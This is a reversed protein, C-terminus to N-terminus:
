QTIEGKNDPKALSNNRPFFRKLKLFHKEFFNWSLWAAILIPIMAVIYFVLQAPLYSGAIDPFIIYPSRDPPGYVLDRVFARIPLHILYIAYSYKGLFRLWRTSFVKSVAGKEQNLAIEAVVWGFALALFTYGVMQMGLGNTAYMLSEDLYQDMTAADIAVVAGLGLLSPILAFKQVRFLLTKGSEQRLALAIWAGIALADIRSFTIVYVSIPGLGLVWLQLCRAIIAVFIVAICVSMLRKPSLTFVVFPWVLYFQEEIALSWSIDLIGHRFAESKAVSFNSLYSWYM